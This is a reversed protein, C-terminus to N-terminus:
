YSIGEEGSKEPREGAVEEDDANGVVNVKQQRLALALNVAAQREEDSPKRAQKIVITHYQKGSKNQATKTELQFVQDWPARAFRLMTKLKKAAKASSRMLSLRVPMESGPLICTFNYTTACPPGKGWEKEGRNVAAKWQEEADPCEEYTTDHCPCSGERGTCVVDGADNTRFRGREFGAVIFEVINGHNEGTLSNLLDGPAADGTGVEATLPQCVKLIPIILEDDGLDDQTASVLAQEQKNLQELEQGM